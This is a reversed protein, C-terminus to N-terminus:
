RTRRDTLDAVLVALLATVVGAIFGFRDSGGPGTFVGVVVIVVAGAMWGPLKPLEPEDLWARLNM